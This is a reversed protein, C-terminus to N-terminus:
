RDTRHGGPTQRRDKKMRQGWRNDPLTRQPLPIVHRLYLETLRDRSECHGTSVHKQHLCFLCVYVVVVVFIIVVCSQESNAPTSVDRHGEAEREVNFSVKLTEGNVKM